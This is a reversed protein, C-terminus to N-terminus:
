WLEYPLDFEICHEHFAQVQARGYRGASEIVREPRGDDAFLFADPDKVRFGAKPFVDEGLWRAALQPSHRCYHVYVEALLLDHDRHLLTSLEGASSGFLNASM